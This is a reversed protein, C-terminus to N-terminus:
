TPMIPGSEKVTMEERVVEVIKKVLFVAQTDSLDNIGIAQKILDLTASATSGEEIEELHPEIQRVVKFPDIFVEEGEVTEVAIALPKVESLKIPEM